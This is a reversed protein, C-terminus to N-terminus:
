GGNGEGQGRVQDSEYLAQLPSRGAKGQWTSRMARDEAAAFLTLFILLTPIAAERVGEPSAWTAILCRGRLLSLDM